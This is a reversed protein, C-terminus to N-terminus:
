AVNLIGSKIRRRSRRVPNRPARNASVGAAGGREAAPVSNGVARDELDGLHRHHESDVSDVSDVSDAPRVSHRRDVSDATIRVASDVSDVSDGSAATIGVAGHVGSHTPLRVLDEDTV